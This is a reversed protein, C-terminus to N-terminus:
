TQKIKGYLRKTIKKTSRPLIFELFQEYTVFNRGNESLLSVLFTCERETIESVLTDPQLCYQFFHCLSRDDLTNMLRNPDRPYDGGTGQTGNQIEQFLQFASFDPLEFLVKRIIEAQPFCRFAFILSQRILSM